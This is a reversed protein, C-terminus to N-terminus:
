VVNCRSFVCLLFMVCVCVLSMCMSYNILVCCVLYLCMVYEPVCIVFEYVCARVCVVPSMYFVCIICLGVRVSVCVFVFV